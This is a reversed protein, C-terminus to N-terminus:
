SDNCLISDFLLVWLVLEIGGTSIVGWVGLGHMM